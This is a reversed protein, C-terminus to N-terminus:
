IEGRDTGDIQNNHPWREAADALSDILELYRAQYKEAEAESVVTEGLLDATFALPLKRLKEIKAVAEAGSPALIFTRAMQAVSQRALFSALWPIRPALKIAWEMPIPLNAAPGDSLYECAHQAVQRASSLSPLVDVFRF